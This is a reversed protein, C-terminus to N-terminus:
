EAPAMWWKGRGKAKALYLAADAEQILRELDPHDRHHVIGVSAGLAVMRGALEVPESVAAILRDAVAALDRRGCPPQCLVVFEDGGVRVVEDGRRISPVCSRLSMVCLWTM